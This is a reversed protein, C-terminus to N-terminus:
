HKPDTTTTKRPALRRLVDPLFEKMVSFGANSGLTIAFSVAADGASNQSAPLWLRAAFAGAAVGGLQSVSIYLKGNDHRGMVSSAVAYGTRPWLGKKGSAFYRNDEHLMASLAYNTTRQVTYQGLINACREGYAGWGQGWEAPKNHNQDLAGSAAAKLYGWPNILSKLYLSSRERQTLPRFDRATQSSAMNLYSELSGIAKQGKGRGAEQAPMAM